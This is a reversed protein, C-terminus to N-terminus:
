TLLFVSYALLFLLVLMNFLRGQITFEIYKNERGPEQKRGSVLSCKIIRNFYATGKGFKKFYQKM